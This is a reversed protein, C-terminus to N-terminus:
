ASFDATMRAGPPRADPKVLIADFFAPDPFIDAQQPTAM